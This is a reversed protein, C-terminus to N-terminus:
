YRLKILERCSCLLTCSPRHVNFTWCESQLVAAVAAQSMDHDITVSFFEQTNGIENRGRKTGSTGAQPDSRRKRGTQGAVAKGTRDSICSIFRDGKTNFGDLCTTDEPCNGPKNDYLTTFSVWICVDQWARPGLIGVCERRNWRFPDECQYPRYARAHIDGNTINKVEGLQGPLTATTASICSSFLFIGSATLKLLVKSLMTIYVSFSQQTDELSFQLLHTLNLYSLTCLPSPISLFVPHGLLASAAHCSPQGKKSIIHYSIIPYSLYSLHYYVSSTIGRYIGEM